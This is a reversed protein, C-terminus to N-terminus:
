RIAGSDLRKKKNIKEEEDLPSVLCFFGDREQLFNRSFAM